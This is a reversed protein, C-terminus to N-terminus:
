DKSNIRELKKKYEHLDKIATDLVANINCFLEVLEPDDVENTPKDYILDNQFTDALITIFEIPLKGEEYEKLKQVMSIIIEERSLPRGEELRKDHHISALYKEVDKIIPNILM